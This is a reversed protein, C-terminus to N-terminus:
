YESRIFHLIQGLIVFVKKINQLLLKLNRLHNKQVKATQNFFLINELNGIIVNAKSSAMNQVKFM